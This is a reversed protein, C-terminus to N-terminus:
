GRVLKWIEGTSAALDPGSKISTLVYLEHDTDEGFGTVYANVRGNSSNTIMFEQTTWM